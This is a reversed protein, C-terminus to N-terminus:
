TKLEHELIVDLVFHATAYWVLLCWLSFLLTVHSDFTPDICFSAFVFVDPVEGCLPEFFYKVDAETM